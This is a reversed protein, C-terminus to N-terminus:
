PYVCCSCCWFFTNNKLQVLNEDIPENLGNGTTRPWWRILRCLEVIGPTNLYLNPILSNEDLPDFKSFDRRASNVPIKKSFRKPIKEQRWPVGVIIENVNPRITKMTTATLTLIIQAIMERLSFKRNAPFRIPSNAIVMQPDLQMSM